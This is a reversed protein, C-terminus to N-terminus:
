LLSMRSRISNVGVEALASAIAPSTLYERMDKIRIYDERELTNTMIKRFSTQTQCAINRDALKDADTEYSFFRQVALDM